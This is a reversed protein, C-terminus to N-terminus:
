YLGFLKAGLLVTLISSIALTAVASHHGAGKTVAHTADMWLHRVGATFHLLYAWILALSVLKLFWGPVFGIGASFASAFGDYSIESTVSADFMWIVFPLLLFMIVGSIRHLISVIGAPPLRYKLIQTVHINRYVPRTKLTDAM